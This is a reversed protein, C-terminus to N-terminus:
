RVDPRDETAGVADPASLDHLHDLFITWDEADALHSSV